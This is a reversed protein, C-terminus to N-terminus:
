APALPPFLRSRPPYGAALSFRRVGCEWDSRVHAPRQNPTRPPAYRYNFTVTCNQGTQQQTDLIRQCKHEDTTMPKETMVDCGFEMAHCIYADHACDRTTVIVVDPKTEAVMQDFQDDRYTSVAIGNEHAWAARMGLRGANNDCLAVLECTNTFQEVLAKLYMFSRDGVGVLAYRKKTSM